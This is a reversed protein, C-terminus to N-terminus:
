GNYCWMHEVRLSLLIVSDIIKRQHSEPRCFFSPQTWPGPDRVLIHDPTSWSQLWRQRLTSLRSGAGSAQQITVEKHTTPSLTETNYQSNFLYWEWDKAVHGTKYPISFSAEMLVPLHSASLLISPIFLSSHWCKVDLSWYHCGM